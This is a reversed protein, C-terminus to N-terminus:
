RAHEAFQWRGIRLAGIGVANGWPVWIDWSGSLDGPGWLEGPAAGTGLEVRRRSRSPPRCPRAGDGSDAVSAAIRDRSTLSAATGQRRTATTQM